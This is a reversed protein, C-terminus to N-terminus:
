SIIPIESFTLKRKQRKEKKKPKPEVGSNEEERLLVRGNGGFRWGAKAMKKIGM